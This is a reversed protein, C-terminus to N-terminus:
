PSPATRSWLEACIEHNTSVLASLPAELWVCELSCVGQVGEQGNELNVRVEKLPVFIQKDQSQSFISSPKM